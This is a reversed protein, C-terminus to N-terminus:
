APSKKFQTRSKIAAKDLDYGTQQLVEYLEPTSGFVEAFELISFGEDTLAFLDAGHKLLAKAIEMLNHRQVDLRTDYSFGPARFVFHLLPLSFSNGYFRANSDAGFGLVTQLMFELNGPKIKVEYFRIYDIFTFIPPTLHSENSLRIGLQKLGELYTSRHEPRVSDPHIWPESLAAFLYAEWDQSVHELINDDSHQLMKIIALRDGDKGTKSFGLNLHDFLNLGEADVAQTDSGENLLFRCVEASGNNVAYMLPTRGGDDRDSPAALGRQFLSQLGEVDNDFACLIVEAGTPMSWIGDGSSKSSVQQAMEDIQKRINNLQPDPSAKFKELCQQAPPIIVRLMEARSIRGLVDESPALVITSSQLHNNRVSIRSLTTSIDELRINLTSQGTFVADRLNGLGSRLAEQAPLLAQSIQTLNTLDAQLGANGSNLQDQLTKITNEHNRDLQQVFDDYVRSNNGNAFTQLALTLTIQHSDLAQVVETVKKRNLIWKVKTRAQTTASSNPLLASLTDLEAKTSIVESEIAGATHGTIRNHSQLVSKVSEITRQLRQSLQPADKLYCSSDYLVNCARLVVDILSAVGAVTSFLEAM